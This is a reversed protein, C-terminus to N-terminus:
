RAIASFVSNKFFPEFGAGGLHTRATGHELTPAWKAQCVYIGFTQMSRLPNGGTALASSRNLDTMPGISVLTRSKMRMKRDCLFFQEKTWLTWLTWLCFRFIKHHWHDHLHDAIAFSHLFPTRDSGFHDEALRGSNLLFVFLLLRRAVSATNRAASSSRRTQGVPGWCNRAIELSSILLFPAVCMHVFWVLTAGFPKEYTWKWESWDEWVLRRYHNVWTLIDTQDLWLALPSGTEFGLLVTMTTTATTAMSRVCFRVRKAQIAYVLLLSAVLSFSHAQKEVHISRAVVHTVHTVVAAHEHHHAYPDGCRISGFPLRLFTRIWEALCLAFKLPNTHTWFM